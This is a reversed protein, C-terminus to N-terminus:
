IVNQIRRFEKEMFGDLKPAILHILALSEDAIQSTSFNDIPELHAIRNRILNMRRLRNHLEPRSTKRPFSKYLCTTWITAENSSSILRVWFGFSLGTIIKNPNERDSDKLFRAALQIRATSNTNLPVPPESCKCTLWSNCTHQNQSAEQIGKYIHNRYGIEVWHIMQHIQSAQSVASVYEDVDSYKEFRSSSILARFDSIEL